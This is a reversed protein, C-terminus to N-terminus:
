KTPSTQLPIDKCDECVNGVVAEFWHAENSMQKKCHCIEKPENSEFYGRIKGQGIYEYPIGNIHIIQGIKIYEEKM